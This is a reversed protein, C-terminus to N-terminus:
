RKSPYRLIRDLPCVMLVKTGKGPESEITCSGGTAEMRHILNGLGNGIDPHDRDFGRGHDVVEVRLETDNLELKLSAECPGAHQLINHLSEKVALLLNHRMPARLPWDPLVYPIDIQYHVESDQFTEETIRALRDGLQDLNDNAPNVAWVLGDMSTVLERSAEALKALRGRAMKPDKTLDRDVLAVNMSLRTVRTGLDDHMDRAIRARDAELANQIRLESLKRISRQRLVAVVGVSISGVVLAVALGWFWLRSTIRSRVEFPLEIRAELLDDEITTAVAQFLYSGAPVNLFVAQHTNGSIVNFMEEWSVLLTAGDPPIASVPLEHVWVGEASQDGDVLALMGGDPGMEMRAIKPASGARMWGTPTGDPFELREGTEFDGKPCLNVGMGAEDRGRITLNDIAFTGTTEASGSSLRVRIRRASSPVPFPESRSTFHSDKPAGQWGSSAGTVPFEIVSVTEGSAGLAEFSLIMGPLSPVWRANGGKLRTLIRVPHLGRQPPVRIDFKLRHPGPPLSLLGPVDTEVPSGDITMETMELQLSSPSALGNKVEDPSLRSLPPVFLFDTADRAVSSIRVEDITGMFPEAEGIGGFNRAENGIAFDSTLTSLDEVLTGQGILHAASQDDSLRTWYLSLNNPTNELGNYTVAVHFWDTTNIAHPGSTPVAALAGGGWNGAHLPLFALFGSQEVRFNFSRHDEDGDMSIIDMAVPAADMPLMDFKVVAEFTFAGDDGMFRFDGPVNDGAGDETAPMALLIGGRFDSDGLVGTGSACNLGTELRPLSPAGARAGNLLGELPRGGRLVEDAFPPGAEDLHWLHLTWEDVRYPMVEAAARTGIGAVVALM